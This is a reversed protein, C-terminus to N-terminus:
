VKGMKKLPYIRVFAKGVVLKLPVFGVDSYRSDESHNRNDGMVFITGDPIVTENEYQFDIDKEMQENIYPENIKIGNVYVEHNVIKFRDGGVAIVRKIFNQRTDSPYKIVVIDGPEPKRFYYTVKELLLRDKNELTPNMSAGEVSVTRGIFTMILFAAIVAIIISKGIEALEKVMRVGEKIHLFLSYLGM